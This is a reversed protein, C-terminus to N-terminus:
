LNRTPCIRSLKSCSVPSLYMSLPCFCRPTGSDSFYQAHRFPTFTSPHYIKTSFPGKQSRDMLSKIFVIAPEDSRGHHPGFTTHANATCSHQTAHHFPAAPFVGVVRHGPIGVLFFSVFRVFCNGMATVVCSGIELLDQSERTDRSAKTLMLRSASTSMVQKRAQHCDWRFVARITRRKPERVCACM